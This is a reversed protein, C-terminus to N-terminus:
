LSGIKDSVPWAIPQVHPLLMSPPTTRALTQQSGHGSPFQASRSHLVLITHQIKTRDQAHGQNSSHCGQTESWAGALTSRPEAVTGAVSGM